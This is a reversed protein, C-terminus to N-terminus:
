EKRGIRVQLGQEDAIFGEIRESSRIGVETELHKKLREWSVFSSAGGAQIEFETKESLSKVIKASM